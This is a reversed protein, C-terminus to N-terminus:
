FFIHMVKMNKYFRLSINVSRFHGCSFSINIATEKKDGTLVWTKIGAAGLRILTKTVDEQLKDEVAVAGFLDLNSEIKEYVERL